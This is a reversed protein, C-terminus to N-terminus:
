TNLNNEETDEAYFVFGQLPKLLGEYWSVPIIEDCIIEAKLHPAQFLAQVKEERQLARIALIAASDRDPAEIHRTTYFGSFGAKEWEKDMTFYHRGHLLVRYRM